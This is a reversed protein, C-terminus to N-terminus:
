ASSPMRSGSIDRPSPSTYLLCSSYEVQWGAVIETKAEPIDFPIRELEAQASLVFIIFAPLGIAITSQDFAHNTAIYSLTLSGKIMAISLCSLMMPIEFSVMMLAAREAGLLSYRSPPAIGAMYVMVVYMGLLGLVIILDGELSVLSSEGLFPIFIGALVPLLALIIPMATFLFEDTAVPIIDEKSLLKILDALPQLLGSPGAYRPGVRNQLRAVFKRDLWEFFLSLLSIYVVYLLSWAADIIM